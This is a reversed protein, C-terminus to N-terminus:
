KTGIFSLTNDYFEHYGGLLYHLKGPKYKSIMSGDISNINFIENSLAAFKKQTYIKKDAKIFNNKKLKHYFVAYNAAESLWELNNEDLLGNQICKEKFGIYMDDLFFDKIKDEISIVIDGNFLCDADDKSKDKLNSDFIFEEDNEKNIYIHSNTKERNNFAYLIKSNFYIAMLLILISIIINVTLSCNVFYNIFIMIFCYFLLLLINIMIFAFRKPNKVVIVYEKYQKIKSKLFPQLNDIYYAIDEFKLDKMRM